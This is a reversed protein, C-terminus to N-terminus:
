THKFFSGVGCCYGAINLGFDEVPSRLNGDQLNLICFTFKESLGRLGKGKCPKPGKLVRPSPMDTGSSKGKEQVGLPLSKSFFQAWLQTRAFFRWNIVWKQHRLQKTGSIYSNSLLTKKVNRRESAIKAGNTLTGRISILCKQGVWHDGSCFSLKKVM